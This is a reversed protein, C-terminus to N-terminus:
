NRIGSRMLFGAIGKGEKFGVALLLSRSVLLASVLSLVTGIILTFAFGEIFVDGFWFLIVGCIINIVNGDRISSWARSFGEEIADYPKRGARLEEKLREAILINADVALGISLILAAIGAATITVPILKFIALMLIIYILLSLAAVFGPLRYWLLMFLSVALLGVFGGLVGAQTAREGLTAGITQTSVLSIPVPLAGFNLNRVLLRAEDPTFNGQIIASGGDIKQRIVPASQLEGDLFIALLRGVNEGTIKAFLEAGQADFNILVVPENQLGTGSGDGFQLAASELYRGTLGTDAFAEGNLTGDDNVLKEEFGAKILKFELLPTEGIIRVAEAVDTVGPLEIILRDAEGQGLTGSREVQVLPESVGFLNTRREVVDRLSAMADSRNGAEVGSLNAQYVLHTGGRLDLGLKFAFSSPVSETRYVFYGVAVATLLIAIAAIRPWM